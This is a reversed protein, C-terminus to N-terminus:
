NSRKYITIIIENNDNMKAQIKDEITKENDRFRNLENTM